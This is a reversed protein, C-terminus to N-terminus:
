HGGTEDWHTVMNDWTIYDLVRQRSSVSSGSELVEEFMLQLKRRAFHCMMAVDNVTLDQRDKRVAWVNGIDGNWYMPAWGWKDKSSNNEMMLFAVNPNSDATIGGEWGPPDRRFEADPDKWLRLPMGLCISIPSISGSGLSIQNARTVDVSVFPELGHLKVEGHCYIKEGRVTTLAHYQLDSVSERIHRNRYSVLYDMLHRFDALTIDAYDEYYIEQLAIMPGCYHYPTTSACSAKVSALVSRNISSGDKLYADRYILSVCHEEKYQAFGTFGSGLNQCQIPNHEIRMIGKNPKDTGLYPYIDIQIWRIGDEKNYQRRCPIWILCPNDKKVPFFIARKHEPSPKDPQTAFCYDELRFNELPRYRSKTTTTIGKTILLNKRWTAQKSKFLGVDQEKQQWERLTLHSFDSVMGSQMVNVPHSKQKHHMLNNFFGQIHVVLSKVLRKIVTKTTDSNLGPPAWAPYCVGHRGRTAIQSPLANLFTKCLLCTKKSCGFYNITPQPACGKNYHLVLQMKAHLSFTKACAKEFRQSFPDLMLIAHEPTPGLGLQEWAKFIGVVYKADLTTKSRSPVLSIKYNRFQPERAAISGLLQCNVLPRTIFNLRSWLKLGAQTGFTDM